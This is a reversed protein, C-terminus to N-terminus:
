IEAKSNSFYVISRVYTSRFYLHVLIYSASNSVYMRMTSKISETELFKTYIIEDIERDLLQRSSLFQELSARNFAHSLSITQYRKM